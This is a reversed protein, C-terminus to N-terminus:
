KSSLMLVTDQPSSRAPISLYSECTCCIWIVRGQKVYVFITQRTSICFPPLSFTSLCPFLYTCIYASQEPPTSIQSTTEPGEGSLCAILPRASSFHASSYVIQHNLKNGLPDALAQAQRLASTPRTYLKNSPRSSDRTTVSPKATALSLISSSRIIPARATAKALSPPCPHHCIAQGHRPLISSVRNCSTM